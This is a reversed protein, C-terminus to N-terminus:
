LILNLPISQITARPDATRQLDHEFEETLKDIDPHSKPIEPVIRTIFAHVPIGSENRGQWVRAPVANGNIELTVIKDTNELTVKM